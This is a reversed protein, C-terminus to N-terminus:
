HPKVTDKVLTQGYPTKFQDLPDNSTTLETKSTIVWTSRPKVVTLRNSKASEAMLTLSALKFGPADCKNLVLWFHVWGQKGSNLSSCRHPTSCSSQHTILCTIGWDLAQPFLLRLSNMLNGNQLSCPGMQWKNSNIKTIWALVLLPVLWM